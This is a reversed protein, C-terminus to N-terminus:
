KIKLNHTQTPIHARTGTSSLFPCGPALTAPWQSSGLSTNQFGFLVEPLAALVRSWVAVEGARVIARWLSLIGTNQTSSIILMVQLRWKEFGMLTSVGCCPGKILIAPYSGTLLNYGEGPTIIHLWGPVSDCLRAYSVSVSSPPTHLLSLTLESPQWSKLLPFYPLMFFTHLSRLVRLSLFYWSLILATGELALLSFPFSVQLSAILSFLEPQHQLLLHNYVSIGLLLCCDAFLFLPTWAKVALHQYEIERYEHSM